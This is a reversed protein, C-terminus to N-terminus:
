FNKGGDRRKTLIMFDFSEEIQYLVKIKQPCKVICLEPKFHEQLFRNADFGTFPYINTTYTRDGCMIMGQVMQRVIELMQYFGPSSWGDFFLTAFLQSNQAPIAKVLFEQGVNKLQLNKQTLFQATTSDTEISALMDSYDVIDFGIVCEKGTQRLDSLQKIVEITQTM